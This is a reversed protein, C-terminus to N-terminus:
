SEYREEGELQRPLDGPRWHLEHKCIARASLEILPPVSENSDPARTLDKIIKTDSDELLPNYLATWSLM